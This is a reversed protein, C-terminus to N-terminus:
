RSVEVRANRADVRLINGEPTIQRPIDLVDPALTRTAEGSPPRKAITKAVATPARHARTKVLHPVRRRQTPVKPVGTGQHLGGRAEPPNWIEIYHEGAFASSMCVLLLLGFGVRKM